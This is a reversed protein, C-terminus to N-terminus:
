LHPHPAPPQSATPTGLLPPCPIHTPCPLPHPSPTHAPSLIHAGGGGGRVGASLIHAPGLSLQWSPLSQVSGEWPPNGTGGRPEEMQEPSRLIGSDRSFGRPAGVRSELNNTRMWAWAKTLLALSDSHGDRPSCQSPSNEPCPRGHAQTCLWAAVTGTGPHGFAVQGPLRLPARGPSRAAM